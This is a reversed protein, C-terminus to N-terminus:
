IHRERIEGTSVQVDIQIMTTTAAVEGLAVWNGELLPQRVAEVDYVRGNIDRQVDPAVGARTRMVVDDVAAQVVSGYEELIAYALPGLRTPKM